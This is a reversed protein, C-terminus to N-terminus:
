LKKRQTKAAAYCADQREQRQSKRYIGRSPLSVLENNPIILHKDQGDFKVWWTNDHWYGDIIGEGHIKHKVGNGNQFRLRTFALSFPM